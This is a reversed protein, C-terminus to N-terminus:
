ENWMKRFESPLVKLERLSEMFGEVTSVGVYICIVPVVVYIALLRKKWRVKPAVGKEAYRWSTLFWLAVLLFVLTLGM